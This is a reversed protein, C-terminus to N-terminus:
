NQLKKPGGANIAEQWMAMYDTCTDEQMKLNNRVEIANSGPAFHLLDKDKLRTIGKLYGKYNICINFLAILQEETLGALQYLESNEAQKFLKM